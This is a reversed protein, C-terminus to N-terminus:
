HNALLQVAKLVTFLGYLLLSVAIVQKFLPHTVIHQLTKFGLAMLVMVPLTGLGFAFMIKAGAIAEGSALAWTLTSYVLGCPLWGWLMGYPLASIPSRFPIFRKSLPSIYKWLHKGGKEVFLLGHWWGGIYCALVMLFVGSIFQLVSVGALSHHSVFQGLLGVLAGAISYSLIRGMNYALIYPYNAHNNPIAFSLAGVIGGCMGVCHVSGAIGILFASLFSLDTM